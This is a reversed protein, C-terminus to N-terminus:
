WVSRLRGIRNMYERKSGSATKLTRWSLVKWLPKRDIVNKKQAVTEVMEVESGSESDQNRQELLIQQLEAMTMERDLIENPVDKSKFFQEFLATKQSADAKGIHKIVDIRGPRILAPDLKDVHNTTMFYMVGSPALLGDLVNLLGSLTVGFMDMLNSKNSEPKNKDPKKNDIRAQTGAMCDADEMVIFSNPTASSIAKSLSGDNMESIKLIYVKANFHSSLGVVLSTKGTGPPGEFLYGRHYPIGMTGYWDKSNKFINIDRILEEKINGSFFVTTLPRPSYGEVEVWESDNWVYLSAKSTKADQWAKDAEAIMGSFFNQKRGLTTFIIQERREDSKTDDIRSVTVSVPRLHRLMWHHGPAPAFVTNYEDTRWRGGTAVDIHRSKKMINQTQMWWKLRKFEANDDNVTLSVTTQHVLWKWIRVPISRLSAGIAGLAMLLIGGSAFQNQNHIITNYLHTLLERVM